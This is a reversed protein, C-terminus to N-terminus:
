GGGQVAEIARQCLHELSQACERNVAYDIQDAVDHLQDVIWRLDTEIHRFRRLEARVHAPSLRCAPTAAPDFGFHERAANPTVFREGCHFCVWGDAPAPYTDRREAGDVQAADMQQRLLRDHEQLEVVSVGLEAAERAYRDLTKSRRNM